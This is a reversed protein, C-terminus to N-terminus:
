KIFFMFIYYYMPAYAPTGLHEMKAAEEMNDVITAFYFDTIKINGNHILINSPTINRHIINKSYM